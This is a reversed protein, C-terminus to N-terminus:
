PRRGSRPRQPTPAAASAPVDFDRTCSERPLEVAVEYDTVLPNGAGGPVEDKGDSGQIVVVTPGGVAGRGGQRTDYAGDRIPAFGQPGDNGKAFDPNFYIRGVPVQKGALTVKGAVEVRAAARGCGSLALCGALLAAGAV